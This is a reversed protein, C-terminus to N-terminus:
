IGLHLDRFPLACCPVTVTSGLSGTSGTARSLKSLDENRSMTQELALISPFLCDKLEQNDGSSM